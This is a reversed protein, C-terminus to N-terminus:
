GRDEIQEPDSGNLGTSCRATRLLHFIRALLLVQPLYVSKTSMCDLSSEDYFGRFLPSGFQPVSDFPLVHSHSLPPRLTLGM